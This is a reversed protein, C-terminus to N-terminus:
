KDKLLYANLKFVDLANDPFSRSYIEIAQYVEGGALDNKVNNALGSFWNAAFSSSLEVKECFLPLMSIMNWFYRNNVSLM